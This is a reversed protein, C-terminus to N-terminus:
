LNTVWYKREPAVYGEDGSEWTIWTGEPDNYRNYVMMIEDDFKVEDGVQLNKAKVIGEM